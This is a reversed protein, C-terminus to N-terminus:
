ARGMMSFGDVSRMPRATHDRSLSLKAPQAVRAPPRVVASARGTRVVMGDMTRRRIPQAPMPTAIAKPSGTHLTVPDLEALLSSRLNSESAAQVVQEEGVYSKELEEIIATLPEENSEVQKHHMAKRRGGTARHRIFVALAGLEYVVIIPVAVVAMNFVDPTPTIIAAIVTAGIIVYRQTSSLAKPPLPRVYDIIFLLLPIQFLAALGFIYTVVFNLYSEATLSPVVISGAFTSLFDIAAPITVFYGFAAGSAALLASLTIFTSVLKRSTGGLLPEMFRYIHYIAVPICFLAGFYISVTFIFSFGGGPTLYILKQGHLPDMVLAILQDKYQFGVASTIVLAFVVWFLRMRLEYVHELFTLNTRPQSRKKQKKEQRQKQQKNQGM